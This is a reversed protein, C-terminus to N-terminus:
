MYWKHLERQGHGVASVLWGEPILVDASVIVMTDSRRAEREAIRRKKVEAFGPSDRGMTDLSGAAKDSPSFM